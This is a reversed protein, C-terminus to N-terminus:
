IMIARIRRPFPVGKRIVMLIANVDIKFLLNRFTEEAFCFHNSEDYDPSRNPDYGVVRAIKEICDEATDDFIAIVHAQKREKAYWISFEVGPFIKKFDTGERKKLEKYLAADFCDHDTIAFADVNNRLKALLTEINDITGSSVLSGDKHHSAHSHIHFDVKLPSHVIREM